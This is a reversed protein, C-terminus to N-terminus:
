SKDLLSDIYLDRSFAFKCLFFAVQGTMWHWQKDISLGWILLGLGGLIAGPYGFWLRMEPQKVGGNKKALRASLWDSQRGSCFLEGFVTGLILGIYFLGQAELSYDVYAAPQMTVLSLLWWYEFFVYAFVSIVVTPYAFM